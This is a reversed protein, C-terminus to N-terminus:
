GNEIKIHINSVKHNSRPLHQFKKKSTINGYTKNMGENHTTEGFTDIHIKSGNRSSKSFDRSHELSEQEASLGMVDRNVIKQM